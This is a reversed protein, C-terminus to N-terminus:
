PLFVDVDEQASYKETRIPEFYFCDLLLNNNEFIAHKRKPAEYSISNVFGM